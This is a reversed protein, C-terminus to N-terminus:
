KNATKPMTVVPAKGGPPPTNMLKNLADASNQESQIQDWEAEPDEVLPNAKVASKQSLIGGGHAALLDSIQETDNNPLFYEFKPKISLPQGAKLQLNLKIMAAKIYNIRRQVSKGFLEEKDAAKMHAALFMLRLAVGSTLRGIKSMQEFSIDPTDTLDFILSRLNLYELKISEPASNWALYSAKAGNELELVKGSEGKSSFGAVKGEVIITPSGNYDNTDAHNSILKELRDIMNQVEAWEPLEQYYYIVPIKGILNPQKTVVWDGNTDREGEYNEFDTYLDFHEIRTNDGSPIWYHRGFAVMDMANNFVPYLLDGYKNALIMMRLKYQSGGNANPTDNWFDPDAKETYWLEAVETEAMMLKALKKSEFDLKNDDWTKTIVDLLDQEIGEKPSADLEIPKGCLFAAARSVIMKQLPLTLRAVPETYTVTSPPDATSFPDDKTVVKDQRKMNDTIDHQLANYQKQYEWIPHKYYQPTGSENFQMFQGPKSMIVLRVLERYDNVAILKKIQEIEM